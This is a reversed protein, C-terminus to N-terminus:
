RCNQSPHLSLLSLLSALLFGKTTAAAMTSRSILRAQAPVRLIDPCGLLGAVKISGSDSILISLVCCLNISVLSKFDALAMAHLIPAVFSNGCCRYLILLNSITGPFFLHM